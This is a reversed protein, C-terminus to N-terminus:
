TNLGASGTGITPRIWTESVAGDLSRKSPRPNKKARLGSSVRGAFVMRALIDRHSVREIQANPKGAEAFSLHHRARDADQPLERERRHALADRVQRYM